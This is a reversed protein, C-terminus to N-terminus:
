LGHYGVEHNCNPCIHVHSQCDNVFYPVICCPWCGFLCLGLAWLHAAISPTTRVGTIVDAGCFPCILRAPSSGFGTTQVLTVVTAQPISQQQVVVGIPQVLPVQQSQAGVSATTRLPASHHEFSGSSLVQGTTADVPVAYVVNAAQQQSGSPQIPRSDSLQERKESSASNSLM